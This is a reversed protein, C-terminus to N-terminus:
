SRLDIHWVDGTLTVVYANGNAFELSTPRDLEKAVVTMTGDWNVRVLRGTDPLAPAAPVGDPPFDGQSLAYLERRNRLEVDVLLSAGAAVEAAAAPPHIVLVRGDEPLHPVAGARACYVRDGAVALGTPVINDFGAFETIDGDLTVRLIRNHHGDSVLFGGRYVDLAFQLGTPVDFPTRPPHSLAFAGLDAVVTSTSPGDIRYIGVVSNGGVDAGVLTVLAYATKGLFAVDMVGGLGVVAAPLGSAFTRSRGTRLDVRSIRGTAGHTVYLAGDPGITSGTADELHSTVLHIGRENGGASHANPASAAAFAVVVFLVSLWKTCM